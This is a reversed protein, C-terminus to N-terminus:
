PYDEGLACPRCQTSVQAASTCEAVKGVTNRSSRASVSTTSCEKKSESKSVAARPRKLPRVERNETRRVNFDTDCSLKSTLRAVLQHAPHQAITLKQRPRGVSTPKSRTRSVPHSCFVFVAYVFVRLFYHLHCVVYVWKRIHQADEQPNEPLAQPSELVPDARSFTAWCPSERPLESVSNQWSSSVRTIISTAPAGGGHGLRRSLSTHVQVQTSTRCGPALLLTACACCWDASLTCTAILVEDLSSSSPLLM